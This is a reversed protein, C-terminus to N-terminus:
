AALADARDPAARGRASSLEVENGCGRYDLTDFSMLRSMAIGRGHLDFLRDRAIDLFPRWDFGAGEDTVRVRVRAADRRLDIRVRRGAYQPLALREAIEQEWRGAKLLASKEAYTIGLNGHEVANVLIELLGPLARQPEPFLRCLHAALTRAEQLTSLEYQAGNLLADCQATQRSLERLLRLQRYDAVAAHVTSLLVEANLPKALYYRAGAAIGFAIQDPDALGTQLIVPIDALRPDRRANEIFEIGTMCPMERDLLIAEPLPDAAAQLRELAEVATECQTVAIGARSLTREIVLLDFPEDDVALVRIDTVPVPLDM